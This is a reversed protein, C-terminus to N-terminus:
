SGDAWGMTRGAAAAVDHAPGGLWDLREVNCLEMRKRESTHSWTLLEGCWGSPRELGAGLIACCLSLMIARGNASTTQREVSGSWAAHDSKAAPCSTSNWDAPRRECIGGEDGIEGDAPFGWEGTDVHKPGWSSPATAETPGPGAREVALTGAPARGETSAGTEGEGGGRRRGRRRVSPGTLVVALGRPLARANPRLADGPDEGTPEAALKGTEGRRLGAPAVPVGEWVHLTGPQLRAKARM